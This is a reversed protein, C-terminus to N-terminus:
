RVHKRPRPVSHLHADKVERDRRRLDEQIGEEAAQLTAEHREMIELDADLRELDQNVEAELKEKSKVEMKEAM